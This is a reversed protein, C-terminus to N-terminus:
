FTKTSRKHQMELMDHITGGEFHVNESHPVTSFLLEIDRDKEFRILRFYTRGKDVLVSNLKFETEKLRSSSVERGIKKIMKDKPHVIASGYSINLYNNSNLLLNFLDTKNPADVAITYKRYGIYNHTNHYFQPM